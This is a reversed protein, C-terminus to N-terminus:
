GRVFACMGKLRGVLTFLPSRQLAADIPIDGAM